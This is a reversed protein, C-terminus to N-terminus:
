ALVKFLFSLPIGESIQEWFCAEEILGGLQHMGVFPPSFLSDLKKSEKSNYQACVWHFGGELSQPKMTLIRWVKTLRFDPWGSRLWVVEMVANGALVLFVFGLSVSSSVLDGETAQTRTPGQLFGEILGAVMLCTKHKGTCGDYVKHIHTKKDKDWDASKIKSGIITGWNDKFYELNDKWCIVRGVHVKDLLYLCSQLQSLWWSLKMVDAFASTIKYLLRLILSFSSIIHHHRWGEECPLNLINVGARLKRWACYWVLRIHRSMGHLEFLILKSSNLPM